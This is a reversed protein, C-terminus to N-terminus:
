PRFLADVARQAGVTPVLGTGGAPRILWCAGKRVVEIWINQVLNDEVVLSKVLAKQRAPDYLVEKFEVVIKNRQDLPEFREPDFRIVSYTRLTLDEKMPIEIHRHKTLRLEYFHEQGNEQWKREYKTRFRPGIMESRATFGSDSLQALLWDFYPQHDTVILLEGREVLRSNLLGLFPKSFLRHKAQRPKPWPYPFLAYVRNLSNPTFLREFAVRADAQLVRVNNLGALAIKRLARRVLPWGLEIGVFDKHPSALAQRVLFDGLGFGIEVELDATRAFKRRWNIPREDEKWPIFPQLSLYHKNMVLVNSFQEFLSM